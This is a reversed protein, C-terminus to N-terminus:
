SKRWAEWCSDFLVLFIPQLYVNRWKLADCAYFPQSGRCPLVPQCHMHPAASGFFSVTVSLFRCHHSKNMSLMLSWRQVLVPEQSYMMYIYLLFLCIYASQSKHTLCSTLHMHFLASFCTCLYLVYNSLLSCLCLYTCIIVTHRSGSVISVTTVITSCHQLCIGTAHINVLFFEVTCTRIISVHPCSHSYSYPFLRLFWHLYTM